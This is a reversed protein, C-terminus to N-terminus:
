HGGMRGPMCNSPGCNGGPKCHSPGCSAAAASKLDVFLTALIAPPVYCAQRLLKRRAITKGEDPDHPRNPRQSDSM